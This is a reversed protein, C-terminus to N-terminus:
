SRDKWTIKTGYALYNGPLILGVSLELAADLRNLFGVRESSRDLSAMSALAQLMNAEDMSLNLTISVRQEPHPVLKIDITPNM